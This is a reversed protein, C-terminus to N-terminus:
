LANNVAYVLKVAANHWTYEKLLDGGKKVLHHRLEKNRWLMDVQSAINLPDYPDCYIVSEGFVTPLAGTKSIVSPTGLKMAELPPLGFGEYFSPFLFLRANKYLEFLEQDTVYGTLIVHGEHNINTNRFINTMETGVIVLKVNAIRSKKFAKIINEVNKNKSMSGVALIYNQAKLQFKKLINTSEKIEVHEHGLPVICIREQPVKFAKLLENKTFESNVFILRSHHITKPIVIKYWMVFPKTYFDPNVLYSVDHIYSFKNRCLIPSTNGLNLLVGAKSALALDLQEWANKRFKGCIRQNINKLNLLTCKPPILVEIDYNYYKSLNDMAKLLEIAARQVGTCAQSLFRGNIFIKENRNFFM